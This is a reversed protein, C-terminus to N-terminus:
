FEFVDDDDPTEKLAELRSPKRELGAVRIVDDLEDDTMDKFTDKEDFAGIHKFYTESAKLRDAAKVRSDPSCVIESVVRLVEKDSMGDLFKARELRERVQRLKLLTVVHRNIKKDKVGNCDYAHRYAANGDGGNKIYETCFSLERSLLPRCARKYMNVAEQLDSGKMELMGMYKQLAQGMPFQQAFSDMLSLKDDQKLLIM